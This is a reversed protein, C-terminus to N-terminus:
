LLLVAHFDYQVQLVHLKRKKGETTFYFVMHKSSLTYGSKCVTSFSTWATGRYWALFLGVEQFIVEMGNTIIGDTTKSCCTIPCCSISTAKPFGHKREPISCSPLTEVCIHWSEKSLHGLSHKYKNKLSPLLHANCRGSYACVCKFVTMELCKPEKMCMLEWMSVGVRVYKNVSVWEHIYVSWM